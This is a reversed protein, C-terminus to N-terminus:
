LAEWNLAFRADRANIQCHAASYRSTCDFFTGRGSYDPSLNTVATAAAKGVTMTSCDRRGERTIPRAITSNNGATTKASPATEVEVGSINQTPAPSSKNVAATNSGCGRNAAGEVPKATIASYM